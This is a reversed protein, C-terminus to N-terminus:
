ETNTIFRNTLASLAIGPDEARMLSEGVLASHIDHEQLYKIDDPKSIGSESVRVVGDPAQCLLSVGHHLDVKFTDLDRNNVGAIKVTDFDLRDWDHQDYCETLVQLGVEAACAHLEGLQRDSLIRVILLLADAGYARAEYVQYPDIIFDKRLVPIASSSSVADMYALSGQFFPQDTLVSLASAGHREYSQAIAVPDFDERIIGKSPSAKKIEAIVSVSGSKRLAETFDRRQRHWAEFSHFDSTSVSRQRATNDLRTQEVIKDLVTEKNNMVELVYHHLDM